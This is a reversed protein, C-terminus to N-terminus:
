SASNGNQETQKESQTKRKKSEDRLQCEARDHTTYFLVQTTPFASGSRRGLVEDFLTKTIPM